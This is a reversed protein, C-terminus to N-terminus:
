PYIIHHITNYAVLDYCACEFKLADSRSSINYKDMKEFPFLIDELLKHNDWDFSCLLNCKLQNCKNEVCVYEYIYGKMLGNAIAYFRKEYYRTLRSM